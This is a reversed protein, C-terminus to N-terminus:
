ALAGYVLAPVAGFLVHGILMGVPTMTGWNRGLLGPPELAVQSGREAVAAGGRGPAVPQHSMRPHMVATM